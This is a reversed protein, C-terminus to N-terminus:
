NVGAPSLSKKHGYHQGMASLLFLIYNDYIYGYHQGM